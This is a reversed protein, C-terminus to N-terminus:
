SEPAKHLASDHCDAVHRPYTDSTNNKRDHVLRRRLSCPWSSQLHSTGPESLHDVVEFLRLQLGAQIPLAPSARRRLPGASTPALCKQRRPMAKSDVNLTGPGATGSQKSLGPWHLSEILASFLIELRAISM